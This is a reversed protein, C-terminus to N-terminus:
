PLETIQQEGTEITLIVNPILFMMRIIIQSVIKTQICVIM